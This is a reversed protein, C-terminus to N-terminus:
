FLWFIFKGNYKWIKSPSGDHLFKGRAVVGTYPLSCTTSAVSSTKLKKVYKVTHSLYKYKYKYKCIGYKYKYNGKKTLGFINM